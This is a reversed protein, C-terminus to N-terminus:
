VGVEDGCAGVSVGAGVAVDLCVTTALVEVGVCVGNGVYVGSGVWVGDGVCAGDGVATGTGEGLRLIHGGAAAVSAKVMESTKCSRMEFSRPSLFLSPHTEVSNLSTRLVRCGVFNLLSLGSSVQFANLYPIFLYICVIGGIITGVTEYAYVRGISSAGQGSFMFYIRCSFTFLAGHLIGVPSLILFSFYLM